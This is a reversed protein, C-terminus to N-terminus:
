VPYVMDSPDSPQEILQDQAKEIARKVYRTYDDHSGISSYMGPNRDAGAGNKGLWDRDQFQDALCDLIDDKYKPFKRFEERAQDLEQINDSWWIEGNRFWPVLTNKIREQKALQNDRKLFQFPLYAGNLDERRRIGAKLGRVYGTEEIKIYMPRWRYFVQFMKEILQAEDFRGHQMDVVYCRGYSDWGCTLICSFDARSTDTEATDVTTTYYAMPVRRMDESSKVKFFQDPFIKESSTDVPNNLMQAAFQYEGITPDKRMRELQYTPFQAPFWSVPQGNEDKLNPLNREEPLFTYPLGGTDKKYCGRVHISWQRDGPSLKAEDDITKNYLDTYEYCTGEVDIWCDPTVLVPRYMGFAYITKKIAERTGSNELTVIDTFKIVDYHSGAVITEISSTGVSPEKRTKNQRNPLVLRENTGSSRVNKPCYDPYLEKLISNQLFHAKVEGLIDEAIQQKAHVILVCVDPYNLLWQITHVVVNLTTKFHGRPDLIMRRRTEPLSMADVYPRYVGGTLARDYICFEDEPPVSFHQLIKFIPWHVDWEVKKYGLVERALWYADRRGRYRARLLKKLKEQSIGSLGSM